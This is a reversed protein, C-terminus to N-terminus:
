KSSVRPDAIIQIRNGDPDSINFYSVMDPIDVIDTTETGKSDFYSKTKDLDAMNLTLVGSGQIIKAEPNVNLGLRANAVPLAFEVWGVEAGADFVKEFGLIEEYFKKSREYDTVAYQFYISDEKYPVPYERKDTM